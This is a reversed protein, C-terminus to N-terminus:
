CIIRISVFNLQNPEIMQNFWEIRNYTVAHMGYGGVLCVCVRVANLNRSNSIGVHWAAGGSRWPRLAAILLFPIYDTLPVHLFFASILRSTSEYITRRKVKRDSRRHAPWQRLRERWWIVAKRFWKIELFMKRKRDDLYMRLRPSRDIHLSSESLKSFYSLKSDSQFQNASFPM